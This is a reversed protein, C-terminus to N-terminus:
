PAIEAEPPESSNQFTRMRGPAGSAKPDTFPTGHIPREPFGTDAITVKSSNTRGTIRRISPKLRRNRAVIGTRTERSMESAADSICKRLTTMLCSLSPSYM